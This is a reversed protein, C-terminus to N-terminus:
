KRYMRSRPRVGKNAKRFTKAEQKALFAARDASGVIQRMVTFSSPPFSAEKPYLSPIIKVSPTLQFRVRKSVFAPSVTPEPFISKQQEINTSSSKWISQFPVRNEIPAEVVKIVKAPTPILFIKKPETKLPIDDKLVLQNSRQEYPIRNEIPAEAVKILKPEVFSNDDTQSTHAFLNCPYQSKKLSEWSLTQDLLSRAKETYAQDLPPLTKKGSVKENVNVSVDDQEISSFEPNKDDEKCKASGLFYRRLTNLLSVKKKQQKHRLTSLVAM